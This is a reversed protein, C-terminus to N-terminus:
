KEQGNARSLLLAGDGEKIYDVLRLKLRTMRERARDGRGETIWNFQIRERLLIM